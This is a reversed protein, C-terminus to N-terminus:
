YLCGRVHLKFTNASIWDTDSFNPESNSLVICPKGWHITRKRMYKDTATFQEQAGLWQKYQTFKTWDEWDDFIAYQVTDDFDSLNFYGNWYVHKGLSRALQTKGTRSPGWIILSLPRDRDWQEQWQKVIPPITSFTYRPVYEPLQPKFLRNATDALRDYHLYYDRASVRKAVALFEETSSADHLEEWKRKAQPAEGEEIYNGDKKIYKITAHIDRSTQYNGKGNYDCPHSGDVRSKKNVSKDCIVAAHLHPSGDEHVEQCVLFYVGNTFVEKLHYLLSAKATDNRPYTLFFQKGKLQFRNDSVM